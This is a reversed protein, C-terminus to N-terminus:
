FFKYYWVMGYENLLTATMRLTCCIYVSFYFYLSFIDFVILIFIFNSVHRTLLSLTTFHSGQGCTSVFDRSLEKHVNSLSGRTKM